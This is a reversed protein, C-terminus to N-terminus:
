QRALWREFLKGQIKGGEGLLGFQELNTRAEGGDETAAEGAAMRRLCEREDPYLIGWISERFYVGIRHKRFDREIAEAVEAVRRRDIRKRAGRECADSAFLRTVLPHGACWEYSEDIAGDTWEIEKWRGIERVMARAEERLLFKLFSEQMSMHMPNEGAEVGLLNQRNVDARYACFLLSLAGQEQALARLAGFLRVAESLTKASDAKRRDPFFQDSEDLILVFVERSGAAQWAARLALFQERFSGRAAPLARVLRRKLEGRIGELIARFYEDANAEFGQCDLLVVATNRRLRDALQNLLSTKGVKRIGFIGAHQGQRLTAPLREMLERRGYFWTEDKIPVGEDYPDNRTVFPEEIEALTRACNDEAVAREMRDLSIPIPKINKEGRLKQLQDASPAPDSFLIYILDRRAHAIPESKMPWLLSKAGPKGAKQFFTRAVAEPDRRSSRIFVIAAGILWGLVAAGIGFRNDHTATILDFAYSPFLASAPANADRLKATQLDRRYLTLPYLARLRGDFRIAAHEDGQLSSLYRLQGARQTLWEGADLQTISLQFSGKGTDITRIGTDTAAALTQSIPNWAVSRVPEQLNFERVPTESDFTWLKITNDLSGSALTKGDASWAVSTVADSHGNLTRLLEGSAVDWLKITGDGSSSALTERDASWAVSSVYGSHGNLTQLLQGTQGDWLKISHDSSGSALTRGDTSWAVSLVAGAHGRLTQLLQGTSGNWLNVTRDGSGSALTGDDASWAVSYVANTHGILAQVLRGSRGDWLKITQDASGSALMGGDANWAVSSISDSHGKLTRLLQGGAGDWLKVPNEASGSGITKGDASWAVSTVSDSHGSLTRLPQGSAADWLKVTHDEGGSALTRGDASWAVSSVTGSRSNVTRLLLGKSTDWLKITDDASGSALTKGDRRWAVSYVYESHGFLTRLLEGRSADWLKITNDASGSALTKGDSSWAVSYVSDSHGGLTRLLQGGSADWLGITNDKSGTALTKGDASWAVSEVTASHGSLTRLLQGSAGDWLKVTHDASGSALTKGNPSWAVSTVSESHGGLTRLLQGSAGDWLKVTHDESGSALTRGDASWAVSLVYDSHGRLTRLLQGSPGDWLKIAHDRSGSALTKGDPSWAVSLVYDWHGTQVFLEASKARPLRWWTVSALLGFGVTWGALVTLAFRAVRYKRWFM